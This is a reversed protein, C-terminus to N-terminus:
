RQQKKTRKDKLKKQGEKKRYETFVNVNRSYEAPVEEMLDDTLDRRSRPVPRDNFRRIVTDKQHGSRDKKNSRDRKRTKRSKKPDFAKLRGVRLHSLSQYYVQGNHLCHAATLVHKPSILIGSCGVNLKVVTNFPQAYRSEPEIIFRTDVDFVERRRRSLISDFNSDFDEPHTKQTIEGTAINYTEFGSLCFICKILALFIISKM